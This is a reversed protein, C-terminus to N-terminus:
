MLQLTPPKHVVIKTTKRKSNLMLLINHIELQDEQIGQTWSKPCCVITFFHKYNQFCKSKGFNFNKKTCNEHTKSNSLPIGISGDKNISWFDIKKNLIGEDPTMNAASYPCKIEVLGDNDLLGDPTARYDRIPKNLINELEKKAVVTYFVRSPTRSIIRGFNSATLLKRRVENWQVNEYQEMTEKQTNDRRLMM